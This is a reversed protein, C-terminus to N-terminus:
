LSWRLCFGRTSILALLLTLYDDDSIVLRSFSSHGSSVIRSSSMRAVEDHDAEIPIPRHEKLFELGYRTNGIREADALGCIM